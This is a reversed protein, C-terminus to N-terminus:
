CKNRKGLTCARFMGSHLDALRFQKQKVSFMKMKAKKRLSSKEWHVLRPQCNSGWLVKFINCTRLAKVKTTLLNAM